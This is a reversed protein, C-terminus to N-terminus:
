RIKETDRRDQAEIVLVYQNVDGEADTANSIVTVNGATGDIAFIDLGDASTTTLKYHIGDTTGDANNAYVQLVVCHLYHCICWESLYISVICACTEDLKIYHM